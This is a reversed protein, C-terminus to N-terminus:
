KKKFFPYTDESMMSTIVSVFIFSNNVFINDSSQIELLSRHANSSSIAYINHIDKDNDNDKDNHNDNPDM